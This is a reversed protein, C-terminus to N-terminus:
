ESAFDRTFDEYGGFVWRELTRNLSWVALGLAGAIAVIPATQDVTQTVYPWAAWCVVLGAAVLVALELGTRLWRRREIRLAVAAEFVPDRAPPADLAWLQDLKTESDTM